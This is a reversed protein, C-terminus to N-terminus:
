NLALRHIAPDLRCHRAVPNLVPLSGHVLVGIVATEGHAALYQALLVDLPLEFAGVIDVAVELAEDGLLAPTLRPAVVRELRAFARDELEAHDGREPLHLFELGVHATGQAVPERGVFNAGHEGLDGDIAPDRDTDIAEPDGSARQAVCLLALHIALLEGSDDGRLRPHMRRASEFPMAYPDLSESAM